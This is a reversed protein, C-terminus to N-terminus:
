ANLHEVIDNFEKSNVLETSSWCKRVRKLFSDLLQYAKTNADEEHQLCFWLLYEIWLLNTVPNFGKWDERTCARMGRYIQHHAESGDGEFIPDDEEFQYHFNQKKYDFRALTFDILRVSVRADNFEITKNNVVARHMKSMEKLFVLINGLHLDRHEFKLGCEAAALATAVQAVISLLQSSSSLEFHDLSEGGFEYEFLLFLQDDPFQTPDGNSSKEQKDYTYWAAILHPHYDGKVLYAKKLHIFCKTRNEKGEEWLKTLAQSCLLEPLIDTSTMQEFGNIEVAGDIPVVKLVNYETPVDKSRIAYVEGFSGENIKFATKLRDLSIATEWSQVQIQECLQLLKSVAGSRTVDGKQDLNASQAAHVQWFDTRLFPQKQPQFTSTKWENQRTGDDFINALLVAASTQLKLRVRWM